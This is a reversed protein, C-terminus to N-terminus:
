YKKPLRRTHRIQLIRIEAAKVRFSVRYRDYEFARYTGDNSLKFRDISQHLFSDPLKQIRKLIETEIKEAYNQNNEEIFQIINLLQKVASKNWKITM